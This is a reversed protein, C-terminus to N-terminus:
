HPLVHRICLAQNALQLELHLNLEPCSGLSVLAMFGQSQSLTAQRDWSGKGQSLACLGLCQSCVRPSAAPALSEPPVALSACLHTLPPPHFGLAEKAPPPVLEPEKQTVTGSSIPKHFYVALRGLSVQESQAQPHTLRWTVTCDSSYLAKLGLLSLRMFPWVSFNAKSSFHNTM